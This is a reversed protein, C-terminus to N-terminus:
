AKSMDSPTTPASPTAPALATPAQPYPQTGFRTLVVAGVGLTAVMLSVFWGIIPAFGLLALLVIGVVVAAIPTKLSERVHLPEMVKGGAVQGLAIWGVLWALGLALFMVAAFPIGCLTLVLATGLTIAVVITLCGVGLSPLASDLAVRGVERTQAPWFSVMLIGVALLGLTFTIATLVFSIIRGLSSAVVLNPPTPVFPTRVSPDGRVSRGRVVAGEKREITGGVVAVDRGIDATSDLTLDAGVLVVDRGVTGGIQIPGRSGVVVVSREIQAGQEVVVQGGISVIDRHVRAGSSIRAGCGILIVSDVVDNAQVVTTGASCFRDAARPGQAFAPTVGLAAFLIALAVPLITHKM